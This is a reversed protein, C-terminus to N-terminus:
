VPHTRDSTRVFGAALAAGELSPSPVIGQRTELLLKYNAHFTMEFNRRARLIRAPEPDDLRWRRGLRQEVVEQCRRCRRIGILDGVVLEVLYREVDSAPQYV